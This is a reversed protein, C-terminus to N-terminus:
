AGIEETAVIKLPLEFTNRVPSKRDITQKTKLMKEADGPGNLKVAYRLEIVGNPAEKVLGLVGHLDLDAEVTVEISDLDTGFLAANTAIGATICGCLGAAIYEIPNPAEDTGGLQAPEDVMLSFERGIRAGNQGGAHWESVNVKTKTGGQWQSQARFCVKGVNPDDKVAQVLEEIHELVVGNNATRAQPTSQSM